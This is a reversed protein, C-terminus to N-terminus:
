FDNFSVDVLSANIYDCPGNKLVIRSHDYPNVDQYRNLKKNQIKRAETIGFSLNSLETRIQQFSSSFTPLHDIVGM